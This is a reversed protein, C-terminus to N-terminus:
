GMVWRLENESVLLTAKTISFVKAQFLSQEGPVLSYMHGETDYDAM